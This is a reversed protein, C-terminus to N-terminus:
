ESSVADDSTLSEEKKNNTDVLEYKVPCNCDDCIFHVKTSRTSNISQLTVPISTTIPAVQDVTTIDTTEFNSERNINDRVSTFSMSRMAAARSNRRAYKGYIESNYLSNCCSRSWYKFLLRSDRRFGKKRFSAILPNVVAELVITRSFINRGTFGIQGGICSMFLFVLNFTWFVTYIFIIVAIFRILRTNEKKITETMTKSGKIVSCLLLILLVNTVLFVSSIVATYLMIFEFGKKYDGAYFPLCLGVRSYSTKGEMLPVAAVLLSLSWFVALIIYTTKLNLHKWERMPNSIKAYAEVIDIMYLFTSMLTAVIFFYGIVSCGVSHLWEEMAYHYRNYYKVGHVLIVASYLTTLLNAIAFHGDLLTTPKTRRKKLGFTVLLVWGNLIPSLIVIILYIIFGDMTLLSQSCETYPIDAQCADRAQSRVAPGSDLEWEIEFMCCTKGFDTYIKTINQRFFGRLRIIPLRELYYNGRTDMVQLDILPYLTSKNLVILYNKSIDLYQTEIPLVEPLTTLNQHSCNTLFMNTTNDFGCKCVKPCDDQTDIITKNIETIIEPIRLITNNFIESILDETTINLAKIVSAIINKTDIGWNDSKKSRAEKIAKRIDTFNTQVEMLGLHTFNLNEVITFNPIRQIELNNRTSSTSSSFLLPLLLLTGPVSMTATKLQTIDM